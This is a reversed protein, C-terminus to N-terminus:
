TVITSNKSYNTSIKQIFNFVGDYSYIFLIPINLKEEWLSYKCLTKEEPKARKVEIIYLIKSKEKNLIIADARYILYQIKFTYELICPINHLRCQHYLEATINFEPLPHKKVYINANLSVDLIQIESNVYNKLKKNSKIKKLYKLYNEDSRHEIM